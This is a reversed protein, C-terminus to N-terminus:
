RGPISPAKFPAEIHARNTPNPGALSPPQDLTTERPIESSSTSGFRTKEHEVSEQIGQAASHQQLSMAMKVAFERLGGAVGVQFALRSSACARLRAQDQDRRSGDASM